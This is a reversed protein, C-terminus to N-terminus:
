KNVYRNHFEIWEPLMTELMAKPPLFAIRLHSTGPKQGFGSGNVTTLGTSELLNMCYDFDTSKAPLKDLRPFLYMAGTRGFCRVSDMQEFAQRIMTAKEYLDNLVLTKETTYLEYPESGPEPPSTMLWVLLQGVTNSCLSVSAQKLIIEHFPINSGDSFPINRIELYGGRHGCEGYFGKSISHLSFLPVPRDQLVRAFSFFEAGYVNEQYVEDAIIMLQHDQAFEIIESITEKPLIAGTPNGPNIVVIAKVRTGAKKALELSEELDARNLIWGQEENLFYNVQTGGAKKITASYLPYQPIPIMIGDHPNAILLEIIYKASESAGNTVFIHDPNAALPGDSKFGDRENIFRAIAERIFLPGNSATYAGLGTGSLRLYTEARDLVYDSYLVLNKLQEDDQESRDILQKLRRERTIEAPNEILGAVQRYFTIPKQGLAQPNGINCPITTRGEKNLEAARQPIPGRVAYEMDLINQNVIYTHKAVAM